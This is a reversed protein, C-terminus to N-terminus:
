IFLDRKRRRHMVGHKRLMRDNKFYLTKKKIFFLKTNLNCM